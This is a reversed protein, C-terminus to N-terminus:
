VPVPSGCKVCRSAKLECMRIPFGHIKAPDHPLVVKVADTAGVFVGGKYQIGTQESAVWVINTRGCDDVQVHGSAITTVIYRAYTESGPATFVGNLGAVSAPVTHKFYKGLQYTPDTLTLPAVPKWLGLLVGCAHCYYHM